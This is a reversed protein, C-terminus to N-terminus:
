KTEEFEADIVDGEDKEESNPATSDPQTQGGAPPPPPQSVQQYMLEALKHSAQTLSQIGAEIKEADNSEIASKLNTIEKEINSIEAAPLKERNENITKETAYVLQEGQNRLEIEKKRKEDEAKNAEAEKVMREIEDDSLGSSATITIQQEKGTALDKASVNVIGNADIDFTVEIKPIGRPAPTIGVLEFRGLTKNDGAMEREGQM